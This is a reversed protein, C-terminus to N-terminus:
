EKERVRSGTSAPPLWLGKAMGGVDMVCVCVSVFMCVLCVFEIVSASHLPLWHIQATIVLHMGWSVDVCVCVCVRLRVCLHVRAQLLLFEIFM